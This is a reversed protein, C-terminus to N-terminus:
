KAGFNVFLWLQSLAAASKVSAHDPSPNGPAQLFGAILVAFSTRQHEAAFQHSMTNFLSRVKQEMAVAGMASFLPNASHQM